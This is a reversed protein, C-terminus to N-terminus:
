SLRIRDISCWLHHATHTLNFSIWIISLALCMRFEAAMEWGIFRLGIILAAVTSMVMLAVLKLRRRWESSVIPSKPNDVPAYIFICIFGTLISVLALADIYFVSWDSIQRAILALLPFVTMTVLACLWPSDSHGGGANHRFAAITLLCILTGWFVGLIWGITLTLVANLVNLTLVEIAYAIEAQKEQGLGHKAALNHALKKSFGSIV